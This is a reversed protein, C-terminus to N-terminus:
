YKDMYIWIVIQIAPIYEFNINSFFDGDGRNFYNM